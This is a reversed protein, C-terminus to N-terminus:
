ISYVGRCTHKNDVYMVVSEITIFQLLISLPLINLINDIKHTQVGPTCESPLQKYECEVTRYGHVSCM